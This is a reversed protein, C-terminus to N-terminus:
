WVQAPQLRCAIFCKEDQDRQHLHTPPQDCRRKPNIWIGHLVLFTYVDPGFAREEFCPRSQPNALKVGLGGRSCAGM